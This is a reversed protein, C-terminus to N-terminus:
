ETKKKADPATSLDASAAPTGITEETSPTDPSVILGQHFELNTNNMKISQVVWSLKEPDESLAKHLVAEASIVQNLSEMNELRDSYKYSFYATIKTDDIKKTYINLIEFNSSNPQSTKVSKEVLEMLKSQIGAHVELGIPNKSNVVFWTWAMAVIFVVFSVLKIM